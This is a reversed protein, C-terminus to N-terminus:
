IRTGQATSELSSRMALASLNAHKREAGEALAHPASSVFHPFHACKYSVIIYFEIAAANM